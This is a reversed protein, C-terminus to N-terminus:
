MSLFVLLLLNPTSPNKNTYKLLMVKCHLAKECEYEYERRRRHVRIDDHLIIENNRCFNIVQCIRRTASLHPLCAISCLVVADKSARPGAHKM